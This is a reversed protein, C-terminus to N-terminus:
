KNQTNQKNQKINKDLLLKIKMQIQIQIKNIKNIKNLIILFM